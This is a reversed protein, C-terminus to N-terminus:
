LKGKPFLKASLDGIETKLTNLKQEIDKAHQSFPESDVEPKASNLSEDLVTIRGRLKTVKNQVLNYCDDCRM